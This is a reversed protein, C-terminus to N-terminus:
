EPRTMAPSTMLTRNSLDKIFVKMILNVIRVVGWIRRQDLVQRMEAEKTTINFNSM